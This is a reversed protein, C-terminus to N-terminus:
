APHESTGAPSARGEPSLALVLLAASACLAGAVFVAPYGRRAALVGLGAQAIAFGVQWAAQFLAMVKGRERPGVGEAAVANFSPYFLGHTAGMAAGFWALTGPALQTMGLLILVYGVLCVLAVRRRRGRDVLQGLAVRVLVAAAAYAVFFAKVQEIGVAIAFPQYFRFVVGLAAGALAIVV